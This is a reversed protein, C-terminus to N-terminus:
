RAKFVDTDPNFSSWVFWYSVLGTLRSGDEFTAYAEESSKDFHIRIKKGSVIDTIPGKLDKLVSFPYASKAGNVEIGLVLEKEPLRNDRKGKFGFFALPSNYYSEYPNRGYDRKFGTKTSLVLTAPHLAKWRKWTTTISPIVILKTGTLPGTVAERKVQSWLSGTTRDYLLVNAKYLRGSIGFEYTEGGV